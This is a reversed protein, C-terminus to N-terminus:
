DKYKGDQIHQCVEEHMKHCTEKIMEEDLENPMERIPFKKIYNKYSEKVADAFMSPSTKRKAKMNELCHHIKPYVHRRYTDDDNNMFFVLDDAIDFDPISKDGEKRVWEMEELQKSELLETIRM